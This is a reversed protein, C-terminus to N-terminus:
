VKGVMCKGYEDLNLKRSVDYTLAEILWLQNLEYILQWLYVNTNMGLNYPDHIVMSLFM